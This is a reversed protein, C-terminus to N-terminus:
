GPTDTDKGPQIGTRCAIEHYIYDSWVANPEWIKRIDKVADTYDWGDKIVRHLAVFSSVRMNAACHIFVKRNNYKDMIEFFNDLDNSTPNTWIVPLHVYEMGLEQVTREEDALSYDADSLALNIVVEFGENAVSELEEELPQGATALNASLLLFNYIADLNNM